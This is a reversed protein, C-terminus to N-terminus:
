LRFHAEDARGPRYACMAGTTVTARLHAALEPHRQDLRRLTDRIRATVTKRAREAEDGLRRVRGGLGAAARLEDLLAARERDLEAARGEDGAEAARDIETDLLELHKRYRAKAEDDLVPDGGLRQVGEPSLLRVAPIDTGPHGILTHLDRLGKADPMHVTRGAYGLTWVTGDFRFEDAVRGPRTASAGPAPAPPSAASPLARAVRRAIHRMGLEAAERAVENLLARAADADGPAARALLAPALLSRAEVSWTRARLRDAARAAATFGAVAADWREEAAEVVASWLVMPGSIDFGFLSVAWQDTFPALATRARECLVPDRSAAAAQAQFRLWLAEISPPYRESEAAELMRLVTETDGKQAATIGEILEPFPYDRRTLSRHLEDLEAFRGQAQLWTWYLHHDYQEYEQAHEHDVGMARVSERHAEADAFRGQLVAIIGQDIASSLRYRPLGLRDVMAVFEGLQDIYRPDGQELLAVWRLSAAFHELEHDGRRRALSIMEGTLAEREAATGLGWIVDHRAWLSFALADDDQGRRALVATRVTLERALREVAAPDDPPLAAQAPDTRGGLRHHAERLLETKLTSLGGQHRAGEARFLSLAVRALLEADDLARAEAVAELFIRTGEERARAHWLEHAFELGILIRRRPDVAAALEYARRHHGIAEEFAMRGIADDVAARLVELARVPDVEAGALHAHRALDAPPVRDALAPSDDLARVVAAHRRRLEDEGLANYLTERVLDHAFAFRGGGRQTVLRAAVAHGLLGDVEAAPAGAAASLVRRHFERGLVAARTLLWVVREPLLGLRRRVADGVGPPITTVAGGSHWLRATQEVFFPNGGTRRHVEAVLGPEPVRGVTRTMLAGVEDASLGALALTTARAVLPTMLPRLPHDAPEVEADRYTGVLLLREFWTHQAVFHLLRLSATDAWHLDDLVVVVPRQQSATVLATTVADSLEFGGAEGQPGSEGLLPGLEDAVAERVTAWEAARASRRLARVVQVWPWYGPANESDWCSGSLVLAGLARAEEAAGTVLATKGIGPEGAVLVLGGHSAAARTIETRLMGAAHERGILDEFM